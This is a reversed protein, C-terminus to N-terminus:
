ALVDEVADITFSSIQGPQTDWSASSTLMFVGLVPYSYDVLSSNVPSKRIPPAIPVQIVGSSNSDCAATVMHLENGFAIYDGAKFYDSRSLIANRVDLIAGTQNAGDILLNNQTATGTGSGAGTATFIVGITNASAGIASFDTTGITTIVYTAGITFNGATVLQQALSPASGRRVFGHDPLYFRHQQGNLKALFAQMEARNDGTLNNFQLSAKWLSGKRQVTQVANTLPSQFTRTNTILEFTNASPTIAPFTYTTM